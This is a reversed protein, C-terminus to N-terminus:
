RQWPWPPSNWQWGVEIAQKSPVSTLSLPGYKSEYHRRVRAAEKIADRWQNRADEDDPHTDTYLTLEVVVFDLQQVKKLLNWEDDYVNM